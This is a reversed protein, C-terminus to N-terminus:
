KATGTLEDLRKQQSSHIGEKSAAKKRLRSIRNRIRSLKHAENM